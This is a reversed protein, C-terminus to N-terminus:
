RLKQLFGEQEIEDLLSMDLFEGPNRKPAGM